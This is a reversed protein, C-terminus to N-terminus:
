LLAYPRTYSRDQCAIGMVHVVVHAKLSCRLQQNALIAQYTHRM